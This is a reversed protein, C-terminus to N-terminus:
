AASRTIEGLSLIAYGEPVGMQEKLVYTIKARIGRGLFLQEKNDWEVLVVNDGVQYDRDNKRFEFTKEGDWVAQFFEPWTKLLHTKM